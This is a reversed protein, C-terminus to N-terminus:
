LDKAMITLEMTEWARRKYFDVVGGNDHAVLLYARICGRDKLRVEVEDMLANGLGKGRHKKAVALHYVLGRRGDYGGMVTGVIRGDVEAVLFLDPDRGLKKETEEPSDSRGPSVGPGSAEWLAIVAPYDQPYQFERINFVLGNSEIM